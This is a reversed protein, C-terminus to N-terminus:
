LSFLKINNNKNGRRATTTALPGEAAALLLIRGNQEDWTTHSHSISVKKFTQSSWYTDIILIFHKSINEPRFYRIIIQIRFLNLVKNM